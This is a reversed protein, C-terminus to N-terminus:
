KLVQLNDNGKYGLEALICLKYLLILTSNKSKECQEYLMNETLKKNEKSIEALCFACTRLNWCSLCTGGIMKGHNLFFEMKKFDLGTDLSGISMEEDEESVRECPFFIGNTEVFLRRVAPICPGGHHTKKAEIEHRHLQEYLLEINQIQGRLMRSQADWERRELVALSMKIHALREMRENKQTIESISADKLGTPNVYNFSVADPTFLNSEAYFKYIREFDTTYTIVCNFMITRYYEEDYKKLEKLNDLVVDFTGGGTKFRRNIDHSEKDGDLSIMLSFNHKVLFSLIEGKLLTGNTTMTFGVEKDGKHELIYAVCKKILEFELLPEGGYFSLFLKDAKDSRELYFDIARKATEFDMRSTAHTRNFYNGSYACYKCRMNCQQTVQLILNGMYHETLLKLNDTEPHEIEEIVTEQLLGNDVFRKLSDDHPLKGSKEVQKLVEYEEDTVMVVSNLSRDYFYKQMPTNFCKIIIKGM